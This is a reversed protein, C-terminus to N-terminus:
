SHETHKRGCDLVDMLLADDKPIHVRCADVDGVADDFEIQDTHRIVELFQEFARGVRAM